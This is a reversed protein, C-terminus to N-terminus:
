MLGINKLGGLTIGIHLTWWSKTLAPGSYIGHVKLCVPGQISPVHTEGLEEQTQPEGAQPGIDPGVGHQGKRKTGLHGLWPPLATPPLGPTRGTKGQGSEPCPRGLDESKPCGRRSSGLLCM